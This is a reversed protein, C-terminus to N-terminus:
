YEDEFQSRKTKSNKVNKKRKTRKNQEIEVAQKMLRIREKIAGTDEGLRKDLVELQQTPSLAGRLAQREVAEERRQERTKVHANPRRM